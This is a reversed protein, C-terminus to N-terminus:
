STNAPQPRALSLRLLRLFEIPTYPRHTGRKLYRLRYLREITLALSVLLWHILLSNPHHHPLHELGYRNKGDNFGYNEIQWRSKALRFLTQTSLKKTPFDTLWYAECVTGDPRHQRYRLVRVTPWQLSDWPDFDDADWAEIRDRGISFVQTPPTDLLRTQAQQYLTPLNSKLRVIAYLGLEGALHLFPATAYLGDAVVYDAFRPGLHQVARELLRRSAAAESDKPGYPEVDFPLTLEEHGVVSILSFHHVYSSIQQQSDQVPHCLRCRQQRCRAVGTGDLALGLFRATDFAKNRKSQRLISVLALRTPAPALRETFYALADDGFRRGVGLAARARSRVLAEIGHYSTERLLLGALQAWLLVRAPIQGQPRGDGPASLYSSLRLRSCVFTKLRRPTAAKM